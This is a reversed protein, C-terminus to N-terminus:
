SYHFKLIRCSNQIELCSSHQTIMVTHDFNIGGYGASLGSVMKDQTGPMYSRDQSIYSHPTLLCCPLM